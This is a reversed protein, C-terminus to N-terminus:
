LWIEYCFLFTIQDFFLHAKFDITIKKFYQVLNHLRISKTTGILLLAPSVVFWVPLNKAWLIVCNFFYSNEKAQPQFSASLCFVIKQVNKTNFEMSSDFITIRCHNRKKRNKVNTGHRMFHNMKKKLNVTIIENLHIANRKRKFLGDNLSNFAFSKNQTWCYVCFSAHWIIQACCHVYYFLNFRILFGTHSVRVDRFLLTYMKHTSANAIM